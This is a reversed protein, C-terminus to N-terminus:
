RHLGAFLDASIELLHLFISVCVRITNVGLQQLLYADRLCTDEDSLVDSSASNSYGSSGGPQYDVGVVVFPNGNYDVFMNDKVSVPLLATALHAFGLALALVSFRM